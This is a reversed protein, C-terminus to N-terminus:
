PGDTAKPAAWEMRGATTPVPAEPLSRYWALLQPGLSEVVAPNERAVDDVESLDRALDYLEVRGGDPNMLLKWQQWRMALMPSAHLAAHFRQPYRWEWFLPRQREVATGRFAASLDEGDLPHSRPLPAGAIACLTPLLDTGCFVTRGDVRGAVKSRPWCAILPVRIGGEYICGKMGRLPGASGGGVTADDALPGDSPGNDSTFIVLTDEALGRQQLADMLRGVQADLGEVVSCYLGMAGTAPACRARDEPMPDLPAHPDLFALHLFFPRGGRGDLFAIAEDVIRRSSVPRLPGEGTALRPGNGSAVKHHDFGYASPEPAGVTGLHWKGFFGTVYGRAQLARPLAPLAPDLFDPMGRDRNETPRKPDEGLWSFFRDRSPFRGTMTGARSSSCVTAPAYGHLFLTGRAALRDLNRTRVIPNGYVRLDGWGLDDAVLLLINPSPGPAADAAFTRRPGDAVWGLSAAALGRLVARRNWPAGGRM